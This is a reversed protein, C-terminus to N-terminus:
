ASTLSAAPERFLTHLLSPPPRGARMIDWADGYQFDPNSAFSHPLSFGHGMEHCMFAFELLTPDQRVIVVQGTQVAGHDVGFNQLILVARFPTLNIGAAAAADRGWQFLTARGAPYQLARAEASSHSMTLWGFVSSGSIDIVGRTVNSWYDCLGGTGKNVFLDRYFAPTNIETPVDNYKCLVIAWPWSIAM